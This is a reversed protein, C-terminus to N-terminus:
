GSLPGSLPFTERAVYRAGAADRKSEYLTLADVTWAPGIAEDGFGAITQRADMPARFRALTLHPRFARVEREYGLAATCAHVADALGALVEAGETLGLWVVSARRADPFAGGGGLRVTGGRADVGRLAGAVSDVDAGDGLFQLTLHWQARTMVRGPVAIGAVRRTVADLVADPLAVAVFARTM